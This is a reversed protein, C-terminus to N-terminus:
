SFLKDQRTDINHYLILNIMSALEADKLIGESLELILGDELDRMYVLRKGTIVKIRLTGM